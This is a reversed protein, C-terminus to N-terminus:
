FIISALQPSRHWKSQKCLGSPINCSGNNNLAEWTPLFDILAVIYEMRCRLFVGSIEQSSVTM